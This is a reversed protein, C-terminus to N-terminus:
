ITWDDEPPKRNGAAAGSTSRAVSVGATPKLPAPRAGEGSFVSLRFGATAGASQPELGQHFPPIRSPQCSRLLQRPECMMKLRRPRCSQTSSVRRCSTEPVVAFPANRGTTPGFEFLLFPDVAARSDGIWFPNWAGSKVWRPSTWAATAAALAGEYQPACEEGAMISVIACADVFM